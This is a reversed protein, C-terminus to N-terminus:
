KQQPQGFKGIGAGRQLQKGYAVEDVQKQIDEASSHGPVFVLAADPAPKGTGIFNGDIDKAYHKLYFDRPMKRTTVSTKIPGFKRSFPNMWHISDKVMGGTRTIMPVEITEQPDGEALSKHLHIQEEYTPPNSSDKYSPLADQSQM